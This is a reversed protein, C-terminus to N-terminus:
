LLRNGAAAKTIESYDLEDSIKGSIGGFRTVKARREVTHKEMIRHKRDHAVVTKATPAVRRKDLESPSVSTDSNPPAGGSASGSSSPGIVPDRLSIAVGQPVFATPIEWFIATV